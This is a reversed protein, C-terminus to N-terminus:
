SGRQNTASSASSRLQERKHTRARAEPAPLSGKSNSPTVGQCHNNSNLTLNCSMYKVETFCCYGSRQKPSFTLVLYYTVEPLSLQVVPSTYCVYAKTLVVM